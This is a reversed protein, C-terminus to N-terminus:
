PMAVAAREVWAQRGDPARVRVWGDRLELVRAAEGTRLEGLAVDRATPAAYLRTGTGLPTILRPRAADAAAAIVVLAVISAAGYAVIRVSRQLLVALALALLASWWLIGGILGREVDNLWDLPQVRHLAPTADIVRLNHRVDDARPELRVARLWAWAARGPDGARHAALGLDYWGSADYPQMRGYEHFVNAAAAYEGREYLVVGDHFTARADAAAHLAPAALALLSLLPAHGRWSRRPRIMKMFTEVRAILRERDYPEAPAYRLRRLEALLSGLEAAAAPRKQARLGAVPEGQIGAIRQLADSMIRELEALLGDDSARERLAAIRQEIDRAEDRPASPLSRRRRVEAAALLLILPVLQAMAYAPSRVWQLSAHGPMTRLPRLASDAASQTAAAYPAVDLSLSDTSLVVYQRLEPNFVSYEVPPIALTGAERPVIMWRFQKVGGVVNEEVSIRSQQTPPFVEAGDIAPLEPEPLAKVNGTGEVEVTLVAAEGAAVRRPSVSAQITLSGVAGGFGAPRGSQPLPQVVVPTSDSTLERTEPAYLFGRRVEYYLRAPPFHFEGASLPFYARRYTQTEVTRGERVRLNVSVPDPLDQIWFGTPAPPDFTAPRSQRTRMDEAFTAEAFLLVQEGVFVTDPTLRVSLSSSPPRADGLEPLGGPSVVLDLSETRYSRNGIRVVYPPIRYVGPERAVLVIERRTVRTRGGPFSLQTQTFDSTGLIELEPSLTPERIETPSAGSTEIIIRLTTTGGVNIRAASLTATVRATDQPAGCLLAVCLLLTSM